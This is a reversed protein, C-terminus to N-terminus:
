GNYLCTDVCALYSIKHSTIIIIILSIVYQLQIIMFLLLFNPFNQLNNQKNQKITQEFTFSDM